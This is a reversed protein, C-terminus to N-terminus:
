HVTLNKPTVLSASRRVSFEVNGTPEDYSAGIPIYPACHLASGNQAAVSAFLVSFAGLLAPLTATLKM